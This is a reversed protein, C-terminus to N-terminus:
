THYDPILGAYRNINTTKIENLISEASKSTDVWRFAIASWPDNKVQMAFLKRDGNVEHYIQQVKKLYDAVDRYLKAEEEIYYNFVDQYQPFRYYLVDLDIDDTHLLEILKTKNTILGGNLYHLQLYTVNKVKIRNWQDDVVVVGEQTVEEANMKQVFDIVEKLSHLNYEEPRQIGIDEICEVGTLNNKTGLHWLAVRDYKIPHLIPDVLEFMYTNEPNLISYNIDSFNWADQILNLYDTHIFDEVSADKAYIVGNTAWNWKNNHWFLKVISGDKKDQVRCHNWDIDAAYKEHQNFFKNFPWCVVDLTNLDIIIGRCELILPDSFDAGIFYKLLCLGEENEKIFIGNNEFDTRWSDPHELIYNCVLSNKNM